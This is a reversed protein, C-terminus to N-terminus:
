CNSITCDQVVVRNDAKACTFIAGAGFENFTCHSIQLDAQVAVIGADHNTDNGLFTCDNCNLEARPMVAISTLKSKMYKPMSKM